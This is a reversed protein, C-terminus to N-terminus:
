LPATQLMKTHVNEVGVAKHKVMSMIAARIRRRMKRDDVKFYRPLMPECKGQENGMCKTFAEWCLQRGNRKAEVMKRAKGKQDRKIAKSQDTLGAERLRDATMKNFRAKPHRELRRVYQKQEKVARHAKM